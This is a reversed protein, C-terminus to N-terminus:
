RRSSTGPRPRSRCRCRSAGRPTSGSTSIRACAADAHVHGQFRSQRVGADQLALLDLGDREPEHVRSVRPAARRGEARAGHNGGAVAHGRRPLRQPLDQRHPRAGGRRRLHCGARDSRSVAARCRVRGQAGLVRVVVPGGQHGERQGVGPGRPARRGAARPSRAVRGLRRAIDVLVRGGHASAQRQRVLPGRTRRHSGERRGVDVGHLVRHRLRRPRDRRDAIKAGHQALPEAKARTRNWVTVDAGGKALREAM